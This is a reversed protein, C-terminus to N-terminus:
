RNWWIISKFYVTWHILLSPVILSVMKFRFLIDFCALAQEPKINITIERCFNLGITEATKIHGVALVCM